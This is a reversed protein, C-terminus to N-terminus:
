RQERPLPCCAQWGARRGGVNGDGRSLAVGDSSFKEACGALGDPAADGGGSRQQIELAHDNAAADAQMGPVQEPWGELGLQVRAM